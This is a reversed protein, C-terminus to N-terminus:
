KHTNLVHKFGFGKGCLKCKYNRQKEHVTKVHTNLNTKLGFKKGCIECKYNKQKDHVTKYTSQSIKKDLFSVVVKM